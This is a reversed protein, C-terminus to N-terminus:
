SNYAVCFHKCQLFGQSIHKQAAIGIVLTM